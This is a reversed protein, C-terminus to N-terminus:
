DIVVVSGDSLTKVDLFRKVQDGRSLLTYSDSNNEKKLIFLNSRGCYVHQGDRSVAIRQLCSDPIKVSKVM